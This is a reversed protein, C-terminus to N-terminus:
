TSTRAKQIKEDSDNGCQLDLDCFKLKLNLCHNIKTENNQMVSFQWKLLCVYVKTGSYTEKLDM